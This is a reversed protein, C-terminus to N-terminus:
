DELAPPRHALAGAVGPAQPPAAHEIGFRVDLEALAAGAREGVTLEPALDAVRAMERALHDLLEDLGARGLLDGPDGLRVDAGEAQHAHHLLHAGLDTAE